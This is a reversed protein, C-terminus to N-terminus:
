IRKKFKKLSALCFIILMILSISFSLFVINGSNNYIFKLIHTGINYLCLKPYLFSIFSYFILLLLLTYTTNNQLHVAHKKSKSVSSRMITLICNGEYIDLLVLIMTVYFTYYILYKPKMFLGISIYIVSIIHIISLLYIIFISGTDINPFFSECINKIYYKFMVEICNIINKNKRISPPCQNNSMNNIYNGYAM